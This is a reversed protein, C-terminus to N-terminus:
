VTRRRVLPVLIAGSGILLALLVFFGGVVPIMSLLILAVGGLLFAAILRGRGSGNADRLVLQGLALSLVIGALHFVILYTGFLLLALPIGVITVAAIGIVIPILFIWLVGLGVAVGPHSRVSDSVRRAASPFLAILVVGSLLFGLAWVLRMMRWVGMWDRAPLPIRQGTITAGPAIEVRDAPVRYRLDGDIRAGPGITLSGASVNVDGVTGNITVDGATARLLGTVTGDVEVNGGALYANGAISGAQQLEVNGGAITVNRTIQASVEVNGGAARASGGINGSVAQDGGAGLYDGAVTGSFALEGGALMVDGPVSDSVRVTQGTGVLDGGRRVIMTKRQESGGGCGALLLLLSLTWGIRRRSRWTRM